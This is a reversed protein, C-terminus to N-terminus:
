DLFSTYAEQLRGYDKMKLAGIDAPSVECLNAFLGVETEAISAKKAVMQDNVTPERMTLHMVKAGNITAGRALKVTLSGDANEVLYDPKKTEM